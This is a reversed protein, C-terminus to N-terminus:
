SVMIVTSSLMFVIQLDSIVPLTTRLQSSCQGEGKCLCSRPIYAGLTELSSLRSEFGDVEV